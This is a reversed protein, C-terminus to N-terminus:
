GGIETKKLKLFLNYYGKLIDYFFIFRIDSKLIVLYEDGNIKTSYGLKGFLLIFCNKLIYIKCTVLGFTWRM